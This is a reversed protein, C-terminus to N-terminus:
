HLHTYQEFKSCTAGAVKNKTRYLPHRCIGQMHDEYRFMGNSRPVPEPRPGLWYECFCCKKAAVTGLKANWKM